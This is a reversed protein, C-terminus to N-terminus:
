AADNAQKHARTRRWYWGLLSGGGVLATLLLGGITPWGLQDLLAELGSPPHYLPRLRTVLGGKGDITSIYSTACLLDIRDGTDVLQIAFFVGPIPYYELLTGEITM